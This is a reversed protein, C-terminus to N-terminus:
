LFEINLEQRIPFFVEYLELFNSQLTEKWKKQIPNECIQEHFDYTALISNNCEDITGKYSWSIQGDNVVIVNANLPLYKECLIKANQQTIPEPIIVYVDKDLSNESGHSIVPYHSM